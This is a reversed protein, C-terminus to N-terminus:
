IEGETKWLAFAGIAVLTIYGIVFTDNLLGLIRMFISMIAVVFSASVYCTLTPYGYNKPLIFLIVWTAILMLIGFWGNTVTDAYLFLGQLNGTTPYAFYSM